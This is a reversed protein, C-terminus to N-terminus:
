ETKSFVKEYKDQNLKKKIRSYGKRSEQIKLRSELFKFRSVQNKIRSILNGKSGQLIRSEIKFENKIRSIMMNTIM